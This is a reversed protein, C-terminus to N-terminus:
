SIAAAPLSSAFPSPAPCLRGRCHQACPSAAQCPVAIGQVPEAQQLIHDLLALCSSASTVRAGAMLTDKRCAPDPTPHSCSTALCSPLMDPSPRLMAGGRDPCRGGAQSISTATAPLGPSAPARPLVADCCPLQPCLSMGHRGADKAGAGSTAAVRGSHLRSPGPGCGRWGRQGCASLERAREGCTFLAVARTMVFM